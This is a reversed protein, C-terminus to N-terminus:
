RDRSWEKTASMEKERPIGNLSEDRSGVIKDKEALAQKIAAKVEKENLLDLKRPDIDLSLYEHKVSAGRNYLMDVQLQAPNNKDVGYGEM